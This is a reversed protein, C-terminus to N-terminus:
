QAIKSSLKNKEQLADKKKTKINFIFNKHFVMKFKKRMGSFVKPKQLKKWPVETKRNTIEKPVKESLGLLVFLLDALVFNLLYYVIAQLDIQYGLVLQQSQFKLM